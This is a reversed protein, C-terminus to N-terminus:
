HLATVSRRLFQIELTQVRFVIVSLGYESTKANKKLNKLFPKLSEENKEKTVADLKLQKRIDSAIEEFHTTVDFKDLNHSSNYNTGIDKLYDEYWDIKYKYSNVLDYLNANDINNKKADDGLRFDAVPMEM